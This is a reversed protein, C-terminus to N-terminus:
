SNSSSPTTEQLSHAHRVIQATELYIVDEAINTSCDAIRELSRSITLVNLLAPLLEPHQRIGQAVASYNQRHAQDVIQDRMIVAKAATADHRSLAHLVDRLMEMATSVLQDFDWARLFTMDGSEQLRSAMNVALDGIREIEGNAKLLTIVSRLDTAVPQYLALIDLCREEIENEAEDIVDDNAIIQAVDDSTGTHLVDMVDKVARQARAANQMLEKELHAFAKEFHVKMEVSGEQCM